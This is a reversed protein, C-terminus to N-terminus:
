KSLLYTLKYFACLDKVYILFIDYCSYLIRLGYSIEKKKREFCCLIFIDFTIIGKV